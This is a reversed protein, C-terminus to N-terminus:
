GAPRPAARAPARRAPRCAPTLFFSSASNMPRPTPAVAAMHNTSCPSQTSAPTSNPRALTPTTALKTSRRRAAAARPGRPRAPGPRSRPSRARSGRRRAAAPQEVQQHIWCGAQNPSGDPSPRVGGLRRQRRAQREERDGDPPHDERDREEPPDGLRRRQRARAVGPRPCAADAGRAVQGGRQAVQGAVPLRQQHQDGEQDVVVPDARDDAHRGSYPASSPRSRPAIIPAMRSTCNTPM